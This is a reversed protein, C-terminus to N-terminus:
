DIEASNKNGAEIGQGDSFQPTGASINRFSETGTSFGPDVFAGRLDLESITWAWGPRPETIRIRLAEAILGDFLYSKVTPAGYVPRANEFRFKDGWEDYTRFPVPEWGDGVRKEIVHDIPHDRSYVGRYILLRDIRATAPLEIQIWMDAEQLSASRWFSQHDGDLMRGADSSNGSASFSCEDLELRDHRAPNSQRFEYYIDFDGRSAHRCSVDMTKLHREFVSPKLFRIRESLVYAVNTQADVQEKYPIPWGPFRENMPQSCIIREDTLFSIRYAAWHSSVCYSINEKALFDIAPGLDPANVVDRGYAPDKWREILALTTSVNFLVMAAVLAALLARARMPLSTYACHVLLPFCWAV